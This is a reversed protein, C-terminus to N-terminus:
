GSVEYREFTEREARLWDTFSDADKHRPYIVDRAYNEVKVHRPDDHSVFDWFGLQHLAELFNRNRRRYENTRWLRYAVRKTMADFQARDLVGKPIVRQPQSM